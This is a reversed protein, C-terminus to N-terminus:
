NKKVLVIIKGQYIGKGTDKQSQATITLTKNENKKLIFDNESIELFDKIEGESGVLVRVDRNYTNYIVLKRQSSSGPLLTGFTFASSNIDVGIVNGVKVKAIYERKELTELNKYASFFVFSGCLIIVALLIIVLFILKNSKEKKETTKEMVIM